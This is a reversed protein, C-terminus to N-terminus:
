RCAGSSSFVGPSCSTGPREAVCISDDGLCCIRMCIRGGSQWCRFGPACVYDAACPQGWGPGGAAPYCTPRDNGSVACEQGTPCGTNRVPDCAAGTFCQVGSSADSIPPAADVRADGITVDPTPPGAVDDPASPVDMVSMSQDQFVPPVDTGTSGLPRNPWGDAGCGFFAVVACACRRM